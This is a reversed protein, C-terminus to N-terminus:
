LSPPRNDGFLDQQELQSAIPSWSREALHGGLDSEPLPSGRAPEIGVESFLPFNLPGPFPYLFPFLSILPFSIYFVFYILPFSLFPPPSSLPSYSLFFLSLIFFCVFPFRHTCTPSCSLCWPFILPLRRHPPSFTLLLSPFFPFLIDGFCYLWFQLFPLFLFSLYQFALSLHFFMSVSLFSPLFARPFAHVRNAWKRSILRRLCNRSAPPAGFKRSVSCIRM